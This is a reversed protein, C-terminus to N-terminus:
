FPTATMLLYVKDGEYPLPNFYFTASQITQAVPRGLSPTSQFLMVISKCQDDLADGEVLPLPNFYISFVSFCHRVIEFSVHHSVILSVTDYYHDHYIQLFCCLLYFFVCPGPQLFRAPAPKTRPFKCGQRTIQDGLTSILTFGAARSCCIRIFSGPHDLAPILNGRCCCM